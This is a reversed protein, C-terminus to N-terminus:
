NKKRKWFNQHTLPIGSHIMVIGAAPKSIFEYKAIQEVLDVFNSPTPLARCGFVSLTDMLNVQIEPPFSESGKYLIAKKFIERESASIHDLFTDLLTKRSISTSPGLLM